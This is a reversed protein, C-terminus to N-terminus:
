GAAEEKQCVSCLGYLQLWHDQIVFGRERGVQGFLEDLDDGSFYEVRSCSRCVLLHQHGPAAPVYAHCGNLQHVRQVLGTEELKDLTRYVTVLGLHPSLQRASIFIQAPELAFSNEAVVQVVARTSDTLRYGSAKLRDLWETAVNTNNQTPM